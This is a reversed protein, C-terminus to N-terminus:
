TMSHSHRTNQGQRFLGSTADALPSFGSLSAVVSAPLGSQGQSSISPRGMVVHRVRPFQRSQPQVM